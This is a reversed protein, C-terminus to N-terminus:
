LGATVLADIHKELLMGNTTLALDDLGELSALQRVLLHLDPRTLPEGGTIRFRSISSDIAISAFQTIADYSLLNERPMFRVTESPMCYQCRINCVDTVSIRLSRHQRGFTDVIVSLAAAPEGPTCSQALESSPM